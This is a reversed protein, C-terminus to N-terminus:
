NMLENQEENEEQESEEHESAYLPAQYKYKKLEKDRPSQASPIASVAQKKLEQKPSM